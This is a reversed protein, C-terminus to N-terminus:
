RILAVSGHLFHPKGLLDYVKVMYVYIDEKAKYSSNHITGNWYDRYDLSEFIKEGWRNYIQMNYKEFDLGLGKPYFYENIGDGNPTFSNPVFLVFSENVRVNLQFTDPCDYMNKAFLNVNYWGTDTYTHFPQYETSTNGDGFDWLFNTAFQSHNFFHYAPNNLDVLKPSIDFEAEANPYVQVQESAGNLSRCGKASEIVLSIDYTGHIDLTRTFADCENLLTNNNLSWWCNVSSSNQGQFTITLPACGNVNDVDLIAIPSEHFQVIATDYTIQRCIDVVTLSNISPNPYTVPISSIYTFNLLENNWYYTYPSLGGQVQASITISDGNCVTDPFTLVTSLQSHWSICITDTESICGTADTAYVQMCTDKNSLISYPGQNTFPAVNWHYTYPTGNGGVANTQVAVAVGPCVITDKSTLIHLEPIIALTETIKETCGNNDSVTVTYIGANLQNLNTISAGNSWAFTYPASGGSANVALSGDGSNPCTENTSVISTLLASPETLNINSTAICNNQDTVTFWSTGACLMNNNFTNAGNSWIVSYPPTGGTVQAISTGDCVGNCLPNSGTLVTVIAIAQNVTIAINETCLNADTVIVTYIGSSLQSVDQTSAANSWQYAYPAIGGNVSLDILGDSGGYCSVDISTYSLQIDVSQSLIFPVSDICANQDTIILVDNGSCLALHSSNSNGDSWLYNYPPTGGSVQATATGNCAAFCLPDASTFTTQIPNPQTVTFPFASQCGNGDTVSFSNTSAPLDSVTYGSPNGSTNWNIFFPPTGGIISLSASGDSFGFCSANQVTTNVLADFTNISINVTDTDGVCNAFGIANLYVDVWGNTIEQQSPMYSVLLSNRNPLFLGNGGLWTYQSTGNVSGTLTVPLNESCIVVNTGASAVIPSPQTIVTISDVTPPCLSTDGVTVYHTGIPLM